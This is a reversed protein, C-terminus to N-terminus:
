RNRKKRLRGKFGTNVATTERRIYKVWSSLEPFHTINEISQAVNFIVRDMVEGEQLNGVWAGHEGEQAELEPIRPLFGISKVPSFLSVNEEFRKRSSRMFFLSIRAVPIKLERTMMQLSRHVDSRNGRADTLIAAHAKRALGIAVPDSVSLSSGDVIIIPTIEKNNTLRTIISAIASTTSKVESTEIDYPCAIVRLGTNLPFTSEDIANDMYENIKDLNTIKVDSRLKRQSDIYASLNNKNPIDLRSAWKSNAFDAEILYVPHSNIKGAKKMSSSLVSAMLYALTTKGSGGSVGTVWMIFSKNDATQPNFLMDSFSANAIEHALQVSATKNDMDSMYPPLGRSDTIPGTVYMSQNGAPPPETYHQVKPAIQPSPSHPQKFDPTAEYVETHGPLSFRKNYGSGPKMVKPVKAVEMRIGARESIKRLGDIFKPPLGSAAFIINKYHSVGANKPDVYVYAALERLGENTEKFFEIEDIDAKLKEAIVLGLREDDPFGIFALVNSM